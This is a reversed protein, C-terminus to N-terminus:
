ATRSAQLEFAPNKSHPFPLIERVPVTMGAQESYHHTAVYGRHPVAEGTVLLLITDPQEVNGYEDTAATPTVNQLAELERVREMVVAMREEASKEVKAAHRELLADLQDTTIALVKPEEVVEAELAKAEAAPTPTPESTKKEAAPTPKPNNTV